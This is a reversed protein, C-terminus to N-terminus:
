YLWSRYGSALDKVAPDAIAAASHRMDLPAFIQSQIYEEYSSASVAQIILGLITYNENAYEFTQGAPHNLQVGALQRVGNELATDSQDNEAFGERGADVPLGSNQHLLNRPPERTQQVSEQRQNWEDDGLLQM